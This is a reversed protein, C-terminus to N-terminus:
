DFILQFHCAFGIVSKINSMFKMIENIRKKNMLQGYITLSHAKKWKLILCM